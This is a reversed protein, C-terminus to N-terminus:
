RGDGGILQDGAGWLWLGIITAISGFALASRLNEPTSGGMNESTLFWLLFVTSSIVFILSCFCLSIGLVFRRLVRAEVDNGRINM